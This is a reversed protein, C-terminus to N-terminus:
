ISDFYRLKKIIWKLYLKDLCKFTKKINNKLAM